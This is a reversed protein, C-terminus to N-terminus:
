GWAGLERSEGKHPEPWRTTVSKKKTFFLVGDPGHSHLDGYFSDKWGTFSYYGLPVPIGVNVGVMGIQIRRVYERAFYGSGTFIGTGNGYPSENILDVGEDFSKVRKISLVPGFIEECGIAMDNTVNDFVTPGLYFGEPYESVAVNRGDLQLAAGQEEGKEIYGLISKLHEPTVIPGMDTEPDLSHGVKIKEANFVVADVLDDAIAEHVVLTPIAMCREGACGFAGNVIARATYELDCDPLVFVHNKAQCLAQVRKGTKAGTEYIIKGVRSSGVFSISKVKPSTILATVTEKRGLVMNVVGPPMESERLLDMMYSCSMPCRESAKIVLTNGCAAAIPFMWLPVMAPFNFPFIGVCVGLPQRLTHFDVGGSVNEASDGLLHTPIGCAFEVIEIGRAISGHAEPLTKGNESSLIEALKDKNKILLDRFRFLFETRRPPPTDAWSLFAKEASNIADNVESPLADPTEAQVEGASPNYVPSWTSAESERWENNIFLKLREPSM